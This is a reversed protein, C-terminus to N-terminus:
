KRPGKHALLPFGPFGPFGGISGFIRRFLRVELSVLWGISAKSRSFPFLVSRWKLFNPGQHFPSPSAHYNRNTEWWKAWTQVNYRHKKTSASLSHFTPLIVYSMDVNINGASSALAPMFRSGEGCGGWWWGWCGCGCRCRCRCWCCCFVLCEGVNM